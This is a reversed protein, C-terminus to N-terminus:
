EHKVEYENLHPRVYPIQKYKAKINGDYRNQTIYLGIIFVSYMTSVLSFLLLSNASFLLLMALLIWLLTAGLAIWFNGYKLGMVKPNRGISCKFYTKM